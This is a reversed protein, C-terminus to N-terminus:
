WTGFAGALILGAWVGWPGSAPVLSPLTFGALAHVRVDQARHAHARSSQQQLWPARHLGGGSSSSSSSSTYPQQPSPAFPLRPARARRLASSRGISCGAHREAVPRHLAGQLPLAQMGASDRTSIHQAKATRCSARPALRHALRRSHRARAPDPASPSARCYTAVVAQEQDKTGARASRAQRKSEPRGAFLGFSGIPVVCRAGDRARECCAALNLRSGVALREGTRGAERAMM